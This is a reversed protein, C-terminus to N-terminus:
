GTKLAALESVVLNLGGQASKDQRRCHGNIDAGPEVTLSEHLVDGLVHATKTLSVSRANIEGTIRGRVLASDAKVNGKIVGSQGVTVSGCQVDGEVHGDVQIEGESTVNGVFKMDSAVISPSNADSRPKSEGKKFM